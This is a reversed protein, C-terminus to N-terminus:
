LSYWFNNSSVFAKCYCCSKFFVCKGDCLLFITQKELLFLEVLSIPECVMHHEFILGSQKDANSKRDICKGAAHM